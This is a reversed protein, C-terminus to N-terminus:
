GGAIGQRQFSRSPGPVLRPGTREDLTLGTPGHPHLNGTIGQKGGPIKWLVNTEAPSVPLIEQEGTRTILAWFIVGSLLEDMEGGLGRFVRGCPCRPTPKRGCPGLSAKPSLGLAELGPDGPLLNSNALHSWARPLGKLGVGKGQSRPGKGEKASGQSARKYFTSTSM